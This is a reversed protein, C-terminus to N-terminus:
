PKTRRVGIELVELGTTDTAQHASMQKLAERYEVPMVKKFRPLWESWSELITRAKVSNTYHM